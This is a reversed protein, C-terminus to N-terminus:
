PKCITVQRTEVLVRVELLGAINLKCFEEGIKQLYKQFPLVESKKLHLGGGFFDLWCTRSATYDLPVTWRERNIHYMTLHVGQAVQDESRWPFQQDIRLASQQFQGKEKHFTTQNHLVLVLSGQTIYNRDGGTLVLPLVEALWRSLSKTTRM